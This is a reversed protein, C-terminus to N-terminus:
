PCFPCSNMTPPLCQYAFDHVYQTTDTLCPLILHFKKVRDLTDIFALQGLSGLKQVQRAKLVNCSVCSVLCPGALATLVLTMVTAAVHEAPICNVRGLSTPPKPMEDVRWLFWAIRMFWAQRRKEFEVDRHAWTSRAFYKGWPVKNVPGWVERPDWM